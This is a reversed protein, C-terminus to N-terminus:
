DEIRIEVRRNLGQSDPDATLFQTGGFGSVDPTTRPKWGRDRLYWYVNSARMESLQLRGEESSYLACHGSVFVKKDRNEKLFQIIKDLEDFAEPTLAARGPEFYVTKLPEAGTFSENTETKYPGSETDIVPEYVTDEKVDTQVYADNRVVTTKVQSEAQSSKEPSSSSSKVEKEKPVSQKVAESPEERPRSKSSEEKQTTKSIESSEEKEVKGPAERKPGNEKETKVNDPQQREPRDSGVALEKRGSYRSIDGTKYLGTRKVIFFASVLIIIAVPVLVLSKKIRKLQKSIEVSERSRSKGNLTVMFTLIKKGDFETSLDIEPVGAKEPPISGVEIEKLPIMRDKEFLYVKIVARRQEDQITTFKLKGHREKDINVLRIYREGEIQIGIQRDM